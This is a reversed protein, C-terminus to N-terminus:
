PVILSLDFCFSSWTLMDLTPISIAIINANIIANESGPLTIASPVLKNKSIQAAANKGTKKPAIYQFPIVFAPAIAPINDPVRTLRNQNINTNAFVAVPSPIQLNMNPTSVIKGAAGHGKMSTINIATGIDAINVIRTLKSM